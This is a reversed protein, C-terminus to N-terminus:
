HYLNLEPKNDTFSFNVKKVRKTTILIFVCYVDICSGLANLVNNLMILLGFNNTIPIVQVLFSIVTIVILPTLLIIIVQMKTYFLNENEQKIIISKLDKDRIIKIIAQGKGFLKFLIIHILEHLVLTTIMLLPFYIINELKFNIILESINFLFVNLLIFSTSFFIAFIIPLFLNTKKQSIILFPIPKIDKKTNDM